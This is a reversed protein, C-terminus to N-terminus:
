KPAASKKRTQSSAELEGSRLKYNLRSEYMKHIFEALSHFQADSLFFTRAPKPNSM